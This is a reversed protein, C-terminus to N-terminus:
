LPLWSTDMSNPTQLKSNSTQLKFNTTQINNRYIQEAFLVKKHQVSKYENLKTNSKIATYFHIFILSVSKVVNEMSDV